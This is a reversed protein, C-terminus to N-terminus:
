IIATSLVVFFYHYTIHLLALAKREDRSLIMGGSKGYAAWTGVTNCTLEIQRLDALELEVSELFASHLKNTLREWSVEWDQIPDIWLACKRSILRMIVIEVCSLEIESCKSWINYLSYLPGVWDRTLVKDVATINSAHNRSEEWWTKMKRHEAELFMESDNLVNAFLPITLMVPEFTRRAKPKDLECGNYGLQKIAERPLHPIQFCAATSQPARDM